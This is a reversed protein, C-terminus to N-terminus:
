LLPISINGTHYKICADDRKSLRSTASSLVFDVEEEDESGYVSLYSPALGDEGHVIAVDNLVTSAHVLKESNIFFLALATLTLSKLQM